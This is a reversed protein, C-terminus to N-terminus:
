DRLGPGTREKLEEQGMSPGGGRGRVDEQAGGSDGQGGQVEAIVRHGGSWVQL